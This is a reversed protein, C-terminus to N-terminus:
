FDKFDDYIRSQLNKNIDGNKFINNESNHTATVIKIKNKIIKCNNIQNRIDEPIERMIKTFETQDIKILQTWKGLPKLIEKVRMWEYVYDEKDNLEFCGQNSKIKYLNKAVLYNDVKTKISDIEKELNQKKQHLTFYKDMLNKINSEDKEIQPKPQYNKFVPCINKYGCWDCLVTPKPCFSKEKEIDKITKLIKLKTEELDDKSRKTKLIEGFKLFYLSLDIDKLKINPWKNLFALTYISLQSNQDVKNQSPLRKGTKYDMIEYRDNQKQIRDIIGSIIHIHDKTNPDNLTIEFPTELGLITVDKHGNKQYFNKLMMLGEEFYFNNLPKEKQSKNDFYRIEPWHKEYFSLLDKLAIKNYNNEFFWQLVYHLYSGFISEESKPEPIKDIQNLKYKYPCQKFTEIASHSIRM